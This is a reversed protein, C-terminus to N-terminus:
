LKVCKNDVTMVLFTWHTHKPHPSAIFVTQLVALIYGKETRSCNWKTNITLASTRTPTAKYSQKTSTAIKAPLRRLSKM